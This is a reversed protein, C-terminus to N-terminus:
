GPKSWTDGSRVFVYAAGPRGAHGPVIKGPTGIVATDGSVAVSAGFYDNIVNPLRCNWKSHGTRGGACLSM